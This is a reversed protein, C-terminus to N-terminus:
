VPAFPQHRTASRAVFPAAVSDVGARPERAGQKLVFTAGGDPTDECWLAAGHAEAIARAFTLGLGLGAPKETLYDGVQFFPEFVREKAADPVGPGHDRVHLQYGRPGLALHLEIEGGVPSFAVANELLHVVLQALRERSGTIPLAAPAAVTVRVGKARAAVDTALLAERVVQALDCTGQADRLEGAALRAFDLVRGILSELRATQDLIVALFEAREGPSATEHYGALIEAHARVNTIPTRLEHSMSSLFADKARNAAEAREAQECLDSLLQGITAAMHNFARGLHAVEDSGSVPVQTDFLGATMAEAGATLERLPRALRHAVRLSALVGVVAVVLGIAILTLRASGLLAELERPDRSLLLRGRDGHLSLLLARRETGGLVVDVQRQGGRAAAVVLGRAESGQAESAPLLAAGADGYVATGVVRGDHLLVVDEATASAIERAFVDDVPEGLALVAGLQDGDTLARAAVRYPRGGCGVVTDVITEPDEIRLAAVDDPPAGASCVVTAPEDACVVMVVKRPDDATVRRLEDEITARDATGVAARLRPYEALFRLRERLARSRLELHSRCSVRASELARAVQRDGYTTLLHSLVATTAVVLLIVLGISWALLRSRLSTPLM